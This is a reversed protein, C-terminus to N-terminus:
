RSVVRVVPEDRTMAALLIRSLVPNLDLAQEAAQTAYQLQDTTEVMNIVPIARAKDMGKLAGKNSAILAALHTPTIPQGREAGTIRVIEDVRHAVKDTLPKGIVRASVVPIITTVRQPLVPEEANPAKIQRLRAGDCKVLTLDFGAAEHISAVLDPAVPGLRAPKTSPSAYAIRRHFVASEVVARQLQNAPEIVRYADLKKRYPPTLVTATIGIRGPHAGALRYITTKKGGAGVLCVIGAQAELLDLLRETM